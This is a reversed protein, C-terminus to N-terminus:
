IKFKSVANALKNAMQNLNQATAAVEQSSASLEESSAAVEESAATNEQTVASLTEVKALVNERAKEMEDMERYTKTVLPGIKEVSEMIDTFAMVSNEVVSTQEDIFNSVENSTKIVEVTDVQISNILSVIEATSKKSEEALKRVEEAVVAFGRGVEGARAAEIAANLALLNTQESISNIAATINNIEKISNTLNNVKNIVLNFANKIENISRVLKEMEKTGANAKVVANDSELKVDKLENYVNEIKNSLENMLIAVEQLDSAQSSSGEAVQQMTKAVEQSSAAMEDSIASLSESNILVDETSQKVEQIMIKVSNLMNNVALAIQGFEDKRRLLKDSINVKFNGESLLVMDEEIKKIIKVADSATYYLVFALLVFIILGLIIINLLNKNITKYIPEMSFGIDIAGIHKGDVFVPLIVDYVKVKEAEYYFESSYVKGEIAAAKSGQDNLEIGIRDKNSHAVAKLNKDIFLAYVINGRSALEEVLRQKSFKKTLENIENANIGVQVFYGDKDRVYGYKKFEGSVSDKRIEEVEFNENGKLFKYAAHDEPAKWGVYEDYNSYIIQGNYFLNIEDAKLDKALNKLYENNINARNRIVVNGINKIKENLTNDVIELAKENDEIRKAIDNLLALGDEKTKNILSKKTTYSITWSLVLM